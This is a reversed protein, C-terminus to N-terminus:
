TTVKTITLADWVQFTDSAGQHAKSKYIHSKLICKHLDKSLFNFGTATVQIFRCNFVAGSFYVSYSAGLILKKSVRSKAIAAFAARQNEKNAQDM